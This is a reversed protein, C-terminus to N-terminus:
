WRWGWAAWRTEADDPKGAQLATYGALRNVAGEDVTVSANNQAAQLKKTIVPDGPNRALFAELDPVSDASDPEWQLVQRLSQDALEKMGPKVALDQLRAIGDARTDERYTQLQALALQAQLDQPVETVRKELGDRAKEFGGETGSLVQFYETAIGAPPANGKFLQQYIALAEAGHGDMALRRADTLQDREAATMNIIQEVNAIRPDNPNVKKLKTVTTRAGEYDSQDVQVQALMAIAEVNNPDVAFVRNLSDVVQQLRGRSRWFGAQELLIDIATPSAAPISAAQVAPAAQAPSAAPAQANAGGFVLGALAIGALLRAQAGRGGLHRSEGTGPRSMRPIAM